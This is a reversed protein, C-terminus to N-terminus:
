VSVERRRGKISALSWAKVGVKGDGGEVNVVVEEARDNREQSRETSRENGCSAEVQHDPYLIRM